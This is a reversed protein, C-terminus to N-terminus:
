ALFKSILWLCVMHMTNDMILYPFVFTESKKDWRAWAGILNMYRVVFDTRDFIWHSYFVPIVIWWKWGTCVMISITWLFCHVFCCFFGKWSLSKKNMAMWDNQLLYDGILHGIFWNM